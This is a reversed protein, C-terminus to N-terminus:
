AVAKLKNLEEQIVMPLHHTMFNTWAFLVKRLWADVTEATAGRGPQKAFYEAIHRSLGAIAAEQKDMDGQANGIEGLYGPHIGFVRWVREVLENDYAGQRQLYAEDDGKLEKGDPDGAAGAMVWQKVMERATELSAKELLDVQGAELIGAGGRGPAAGAAIDSAWSKAVDVGSQIAESENHAPTSMWWQSTNGFFASGMLDLFEKVAAQEMEQELIIQAQAKLDAAWREPAIARRVAEPLQTKLAQLRAIVKPINSKILV